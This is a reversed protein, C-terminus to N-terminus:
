WEAAPMQAAVVVDQPVDATSFRRPPWSRGGHARARWQHRVQVLPLKRPHGDPRPVVAHARLLRSGRPASRRSGPDASQGDMRSPQTSSPPLPGDCRIGAVALRLHQGQCLAWRAQHSAVGGLLEVCLNQRTARGAQRRAVVLAPLALTLPDGFGVPNRQFHRIREPPLHWHSARRWSM